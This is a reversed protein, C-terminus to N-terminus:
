CDTPHAADSYNELTRRAEAEDMVAIGFDESCLFSERIQTLLNLAEDLDPNVRKNWDSGHDWEEGTELTCGCNGCVYQTSQRSSGYREIYPEENGCFPCPKLKM